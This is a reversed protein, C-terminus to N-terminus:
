DVQSQRICWQKWGADTLGSIYLILSVSVIVHAFVRQAVGFRLLHAIAFFLTCFLRM